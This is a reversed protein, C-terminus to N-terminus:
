APHIWVIGRGPPLEVISNPGAITIKAPGRTQVKGLLEIQESVATQRFARGTSSQDTIETTSRLIRLGNVTVNIPLLKAKRGALTVKRGFLDKGNETVRIDMEEQDLNILSIFREGRSNRVRHLLLGGHAVDHQVHPKAGMRDFIGRWLPMHLPLEATILTVQGAGYPITAGASLHTQVVNLFSKGRPASFPMLQWVRVEPEAHAWDIGQLSPFYDSSGQKLDHLEIGLADGLIKAPRGELDEVPLRGYLLLHGGRHVFDLLRHQVEAHLCSASALAIARIGSPIPARLNVAPFSLGCAMMARTLAELPGRAAELQSALAMMPGPRKVDTSYYDPVFGLAIDDHEETMAALLQGVSALTRNTDQLGFYTPDLKGEPDIPAAFGHRGGTTGLRSNGDQKARELMPNHGGALLYHNLMRNGQVVSLRAKFDTAASSQRIAGNEGYDGSGAEFEISSLPQEPRNVCAMFANMFYLDGANLRTIEGLYHDSSGWYGEAQTYSPFTQSIGIPFTTARGGGSGHINIVFPVDTVGAAEAFGRLKSAYRAFRDRTFESYDAHFFRAEAYTGDRLFKARNAPDGLDFPYRAKLEEPRHHNQAWATFECLVDESLDAEETWCQLMGIENDLQVAIVNGGHKDLRKALIPMVAAYWRQAFGLFEPNLYSLTKSTAKKGGWTTPIANPCRIYIWDPIGENKVEGMVFPGPRAIFWLGESRCLDIFAGLDHEPRKRGTVDIDGEIEEHYLWPIYSAIANCGAERAKVIRDHWDGRALRFYHVEGSLVLVPKGGVILKRDEFHAM